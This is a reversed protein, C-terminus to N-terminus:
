INKGIDHIEGKVTGMGATGASEDLSTAGLLPDLTAMIEKYIYSSFILESIYYECAAFRNGVEIMGDNLDKVIELPPVGTKLKNEVLASVHKKDLEALAQALETLGAM